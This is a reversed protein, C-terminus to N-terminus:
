MKFDVKKYKSRKQQHHHLNNSQKKGIQDVRQSDDAPRKGMVNFNQGLLLRKLEIM